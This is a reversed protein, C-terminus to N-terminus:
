FFAELDIVGDEAPVQPVEDPEETQEPLAFYNRIFKEAESGCCCNGNQRAYQCIQKEIEQLAKPKAQLDETVIRCGHPDGRLMDKIQEGVMWVPGRKPPQQKEVEHKLAQWNEDKM